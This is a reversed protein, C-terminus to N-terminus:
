PGRHMCWGRVRGRRYFAMGPGSKSQEQAMKGPDSRCSKGIMLGQEQIHSKEPSSEKHTANKRVSRFETEVIKVLENDKSESTLQQPPFRSTFSQRPKEFQLKQV